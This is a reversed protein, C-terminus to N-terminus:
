NKSPRDTGALFHHGPGGFKVRGAWGAWAMLFLGQSPFHGWPWGVRVGRPGGCGGPDARLSRHVM